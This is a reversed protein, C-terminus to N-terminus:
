LGSEGAQHWTHGITKSVVPQRPVHNQGLNSDEAIMRIRHKKGQIQRLVPFRNPSWQIVVEAQNGERAGRGPHGSHPQARQVQPQQGATDSLFYSWVCAPHQSPLLWCQLVQSSRIPLIQVCAAKASIFSVANQTEDAFTSNATRPFYHSVGNPLLCSKIPIHSGWLLLIPMFM